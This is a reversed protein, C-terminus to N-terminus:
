RASTPAYARRARIGRRSVRSAARSLRHREHGTRARRTAPRAGLAPPQEQARGRAANCTGGPHVRGAGAPDPRAQRRAGARACLADDSVRFVRPRDCLSARQTAHACRPRVGPRQRAHRAQRLYCRLRCRAGGCSRRLPSREADHDRGCRHSRPPAARRGADRRTGRLGPRPRPGGRPGSRPLAGSREVVGCGRGAVLRRADRRGPAHPRDLFRPRWRRTGPAAATRVASAPREHASGKSIPCPPLRVLRPPASPWGQRRATAPRVPANPNWANRTALVEAALAAM